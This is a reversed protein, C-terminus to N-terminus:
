KVQDKIALQIAKLRKEKKSYNSGFKLYEVKFELGIENLYWKFFATRENWRYASEKWFIPMPIGTYTHISCMFCTYVDCLESIIGKLNRIKIEEFLEKVEGFTYKLDLKTTPFEDTWLIKM